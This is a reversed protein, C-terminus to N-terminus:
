SKRSATQLSRSTPSACFKVRSSSASGIKRPISFRLGHLRRPGNATNARYRACRVDVRGSVDLRFCGHGYLRAILGTGRAVFAHDRDIGATETSGSLCVVSRGLAADEDLLSEVEVPGETTAILVRIRSAGREM